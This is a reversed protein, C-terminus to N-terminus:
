QADNSNNHKTKTAINIINTTTVLLPISLIHVQNITGRLNQVDTTSANDVQIQLLITQGPVYGGHPARVSM